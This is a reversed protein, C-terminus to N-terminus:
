IGVTPVSTVHELDRGFTYVLVSVLRNKKKISNRINIFNTPRVPFAIHFSDQGLALGRQSFLLGWRRVVAPSTQAARRRQQWPLMRRIHRGASSSVHFSAVHAGGESTASTAAQSPRSARRGASSNVHCSAVPEDGEAVASTAAQPM